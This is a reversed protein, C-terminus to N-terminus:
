KVAITLCFSSLATAGLKSALKAAFDQAKHAVPM